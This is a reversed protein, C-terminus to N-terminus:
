EVEALQMNLIMQVIRLQVEPKLQANLVTDGIWHTKLKSWIKNVEHDVPIYPIPKDDVASFGEDKVETEEEPVSEVAPEPKDADPEQSGVPEPTNQVQKEQALWYSLTSFPVDIERAVQNISKGETMLEKAQILKEKRDKRAAPMTKDEKKRFRTNINWHKKEEATKEPFAPMTGKLEGKGDAADLDYKYVWVTNDVFGEPPSPSELKPVAYANSEGLEICHMSKNKM